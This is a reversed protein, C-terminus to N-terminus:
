QPEAVRLAVPVRPPRPPEPDSRITQFEPHAGLNAALVPDGSVTRTSQGLRVAERLYAIAKDRSAPALHTAAAHLRAAQYYLVPVQVPGRVAVEIDELCRLRNVRSGTEDLDCRYRALARNYRAAQFDEVAAVAKDLYDVAVSPQGGQLYGYGVINYVAASDAGLTIAEKGLDAGAIPYDGQVACYAAYALTERNRRLAAAKRFSELALSPKDQRVLEQGRAFFEDATQPERVPKSPVPDQPQAQPTTGAVQGLWVGAVVLMAAASGVAARRLSGRWGRQEGRSVALWRELSEAVEAASPRDEPAVALCREVLRMVVTPASRDPWGLRGHRGRRSLLDAAVLKLDAGDGAALPVRGTLLEVLVLGLSYVDAKAPDVRGADQGTLSRLQEPAMYSLTGGFGAADGRPALNFDILYPHGGPGLLVNSPKLDGHGIQQSHLYGLADAIRAAIAVVGAAYGDTPRVVPPPVPTVAATVHAAEIAGLLVAASRPPAHPERFAHRRAAELTAGGLLPMCVANFGDVRRAWYVETIHPHKLPGLTRGEGGCTPSLKLVSLRDTEQDFVLYARAFSGRGLEGVVQLGGLRDGPQPWAVQEPQLLEPHEGLLRHAQLVARISGQYAPMRACFETLEPAGDRQELLCYEEYALDVVVSKFPLLDPYEALVAAVDPLDGARWQLKIQAALADARTATALGVAETTAPQATV